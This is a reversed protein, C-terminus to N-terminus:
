SGRVQQPRSPYVVKWLGQVTKQIMAGTVRTREPHEESGEGATVAASAESAVESVGGSGVSPEHEPSFSVPRIAAPGPVAASAESVGESAEATAGSRERVPRSSVEPIAPPGPLDLRSPPSPPSPDLTGSSGLEHESGITLSLWMEEAQTLVAAVSAGMRPRSAGGESPAAGGSAQREDPRSRRAAEEAAAVEAAAVVAEAAAAEAADIIAEAEEPTLDDGPTFSLPPGPADLIDAPRHSM